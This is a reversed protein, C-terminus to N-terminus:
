INSYIASIQVGKKFVFNRPPCISYFPVDVTHKMDRRVLLLQPAVNNTNAQTYHHGACITNHKLKTKRRRTYGICLTAMKEPNDM